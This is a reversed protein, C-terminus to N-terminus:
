KTFTVVGGDVIVLELSDCRALLKKAAKPFTGFYGCMCTTIVSGDTPRSGHFDRYWRVFERLDDDTIDQVRM